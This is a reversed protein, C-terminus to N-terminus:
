GADEPLDEDIPWGSEPEGSFGGEPEGVNTDVMPTSEFPISAQLVRARVRVQKGKLPAASALMSLPMAGRFTVTGTVTGNNHNISVVRIPGDWEMRACGPADMPGLEGLQVVSWRLSPGYKHVHELVQGSPHLYAGEEDTDKGAVFLCTAGPRVQELAEAKEISDLEFRVSGSFPIPEKADGLKLATLEADLMVEDARVLFVQGSTVLPNTVPGAVLEGQASDSKRRGSGKGGM